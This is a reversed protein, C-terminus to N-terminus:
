TGGETQYGIRPKPPADAEAMLERIAEFIAVFHQDHDGVRRELQELKRRLQDHSALLRRLRVFVRIIQISVAIATASRLVASLMAVGEETFAYPTGRRAGGWSSIAFQSKLNEAEARTMQFMFDSPFRARNRKVAENLRSVPVGYLEALDGSLIVKHGRIVRISDEISRQRRTIAGSQRPVRKRGRQAMVNEEATTGGAVCRGAPTIPKRIAALASCARLSVRDAAQTEERIEAATPRM